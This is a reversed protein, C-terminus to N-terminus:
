ADTHVHALLWKAVGDDNNSGIVGTAAAKLEDVANEVAYSEDAMEFMDIDNKGDGFVVVRECGLHKKLRAIAKSKSAELPMIELWQAGSYIDRHFVCHHADRYAAYFPALKEPEDICSIYFIEGDFLRQADEVMRERRDGRRSLIYDMAGATQKREVYSYKEEGGIIAYVIPHIDAALLESLMAHAQDAEFCTSLLTEGTANDVIFAGNYVILPIKADLGKTVRSATNYSRATAYSFLMGRACLANVTENTFNSTREDSMLLTGDLDSVYLTKM